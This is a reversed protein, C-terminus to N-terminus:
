RTRYIYKQRDRSIPLNRQGDDGDRGSQSHVKEARINTPIFDADHINEPRIGFIINKNTHADYAKPHGSPITLTFDGADVIFNAM